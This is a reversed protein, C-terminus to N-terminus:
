QLRGDTAPQEFEFVRHGRVPGVLRHRKTMRLIEGPSSLRYNGRHPAIALVDAAVGDRVRLDAVLLPDRWVHVGGPRSPTWEASPRDPRPHAVAMRYVKHWGRRLDELQQALERSGQWAKLDAGSGSALVAAADFMPAFGALVEAAASAAELVEAVRVRIVGEILEDAHETVWGRVKQHLADAADNIPQPDVAAANAAAKAVEAAAEKPSRGALVLAAASPITAVERKMAAIEAQRDLLAALGAPLEIQDLLSPLVLDLKRRV